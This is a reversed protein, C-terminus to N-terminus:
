KSEEGVLRRVYGLNREVDAGVPFQAAAVRLATM